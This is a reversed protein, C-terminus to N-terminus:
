DALTGDRGRAHWADLQARFTRVWTDIVQEVHGWKRLGRASPLADARRRAVVAYLREGSESDLLEAEVSAWGVSREVTAIPPAYPDVSRSSPAVQQRETPTLGTLAARVRMVGPGPELVVPYAPGVARKFANEFYLRLQDRDSPSLNRASSGWFVVPELLIRDFATFDVGPKRYVLSGGPDARFRAYDGLFGSPEPRTRSAPRSTTCAATLLLAGLLCGVLRSSRLDSRKRMLGRVGFGRTAAPATGGARRSRDRERM